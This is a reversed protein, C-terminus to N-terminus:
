LPESSFNLGISSKRLEKQRGILKVVDSLLGNIDVKGFVPVQRRSFDLLKSIISKCRYTEDSITKLYDPFVEKDDKSKFDVNDMRNM